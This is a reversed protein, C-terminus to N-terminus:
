EMKKREPTAPATASASAAHEAVVLLLRKMLVPPPDCLALAPVPPAPPDVIEDLPGPKPPLNPEPPPSMPLQACFSGFLSPSPSPNVGACPSQLSQSGLTFGPATSTGIPGFPSPPMVSGTSESQLPLNSGGWGQSLLRARSSTMPM